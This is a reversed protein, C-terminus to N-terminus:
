GTLSCFSCLDLNSSPFGTPTWPFPLQKTQGHLLILSSTQLWTASPGSKLSQQSLRDPDVCPKQSSPAQGSCHQCVAPLSLLVLFPKGHSKKSALPHTWVWERERVQLHRGHSARDNREQGASRAVGMLSLIWPTLGALSSHIVLHHTM